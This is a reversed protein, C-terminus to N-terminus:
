ALRGETFGRGKRSLTTAYRGPSPDVRRFLHSHPVSLSVGEEHPTWGAASKRGRERGKPGGEGALPSPVQNIDM